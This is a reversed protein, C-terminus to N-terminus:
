NNVPGDKVTLKSLVKTVSGVAVMYGGITILSAPLVVVGSVLVGGVFGIGVGIKGIKKWFKPSESSWREKITM